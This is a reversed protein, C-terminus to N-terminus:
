VLPHPKMNLHTTHSNNCTDMTEFHLFMFIMKDKFETQRSDM